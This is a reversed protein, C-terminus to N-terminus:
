VVSKRDIILVDLFAAIRGENERRACKGLWRKRLCPVFAAWVPAGCEKFIAALGTSELLFMILVNVLSNTSMFHGRM